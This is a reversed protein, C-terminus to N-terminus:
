LTTPPRSEGRSWFMQESRLDGMFFCLGGHCTGVANLKCECTSWVAYIVNIILQILNKHNLKYSWKRSYWLAGPGRTEGLRSRGACNHESKISNIPFNQGESFLNSLMRLSHSCCTSKDPMYTHYQFTRFCLSLTFTIFIANSYFDYM